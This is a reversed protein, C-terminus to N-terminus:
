KTENSWGKIELKTIRRTLLEISLLVIFFISMIAYPYFTQKLIYSYFDALVFRLIFLITLSFLWLIAFEFSTKRSTSECFLIYEEIERIENTLYTSMSLIDGGQECWLTVVDTFLQYIHFPFYRQLYLIKENETLDVIADSEEQFDDGLSDAASEFAGRISEKISLSILFNNIFCYVQHFRTTKLAFTKFRKAIIFLFYLITALFVVSSAIISDSAIYCIIAFIVSLVLGFIVSKNM